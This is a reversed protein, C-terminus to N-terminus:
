KRYQALLDNTKTNLTSAMEGLRQRWDTGQLSAPEDCFSKSRQKIMYYERNVSVRDESGGVTSCTAAGYHDHSPSPRAPGPPRAPRAPRAPYHSPAPRPPVPRLPVCYVDNRCLPSWETAIAAVAGRATRCERTNCRPRSM